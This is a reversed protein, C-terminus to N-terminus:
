NARIATLTATNNAFNDNLYIVYNKYLANPQSGLNIVSKDVGILKGTDANYVRLGVDSVIYAKGNVVIPRTGLSGGGEAIDGWVFSGDAADFCKINKVLEKPIGTMGTTGSSAQSTFYLKNDYFFIGRSFSSNAVCHEKTIDQKEADIEFYKEGTHRNYCGLSSDVVYLKEGNIILSNQPLGHFINQNYKWKVECTLADIAVLDGTGEYPYDPNKTLFYVIGDKEIPSAWVVHRAPAEWILQPVIMQETKPDKSFDISNSDFRMLGLPDVGGSNDYGDNGWYLYNKFSILYRLRTSNRIAAKEDVGLKVTALLKGNSDDFCLLHGPMTQVFIYDMCKVPDTKEPKSIIESKWVYTGDEPNVKALQLKRDKFNSFMYNSEILYLSEGFLKMNSWTELAGTELTWAIDPTYVPEPKNSEDGKNGSLFFCCSFVLSLAAAPIIFLIKRKM